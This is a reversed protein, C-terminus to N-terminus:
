WSVEFLAGEEGNKLGIAVAVRSLDLQVEVSCGEGRLDVWVYGGNTMYLTSLYDIWLRNKIGKYEIGLHLMVKFWDFCKMLAKPECKYCKPCFMGGKMEM